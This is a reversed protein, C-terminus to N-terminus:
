KESRKHSQLARFITQEDIENFMALEDKTLSALEKTWDISAGTYGNQFAARMQQTAKRKAGAGCYKKGHDGWRYCGGGLNHIPM